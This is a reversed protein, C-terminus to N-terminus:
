VDCNASLTGVHTAEPLVPPRALATIGNALAFYGEHGFAARGCHSVIPNQGM